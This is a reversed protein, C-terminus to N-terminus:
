REDIGGDSFWKPLRSTEGGKHEAEAGDEPEAGLLWSLIPLDRRLAALERFAAQFHSEIPVIRLDIERLLGTPSPMPVTLCTAQKRLRSFDALIPPILSAILKEAGQGTLHREALHTMLGLDVITAKYAKLLRGAAFFDINGQRTESTAITVESVRASSAAARVSFGRRHRLLKFGRWAYGFVSRSNPM